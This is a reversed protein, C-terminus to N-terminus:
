MMANGLLNSSIGNSAKRYPRLKGDFMLLRSSNVCKSRVNMRFVDSVIVAPNSDRVVSRVLYTFVDMARSSLVLPLLQGVVCAGVLDAGVVM